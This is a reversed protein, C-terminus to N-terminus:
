DVERIWVIKLFLCHNGATVYGNAEAYEDVSAYDDSWDADELTGAYGSYGNEECFDAVRDAADQECRADTFFEAVAGGCGIDLGICFIRNENTDELIYKEGPLQVGGHVFKTREPIIKANAINRITEANYEM